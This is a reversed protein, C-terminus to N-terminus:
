ATPRQEHHTILLPYQWTGEMLETQSLQALADHRVDSVVRMPARIRRLVIRNDMEGKAKGEAAPGIDCDRQAETGDKEEIKPPAIEDGVHDTMEHISKM